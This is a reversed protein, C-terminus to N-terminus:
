ALEGEVAWRRFRYLEVEQQSREKGEIWWEQYGDADIVAPGDTRHLQGNQWWEQDGNPMIVAPGDTRHLVGNLRWEQRGDHWIRAPGDTRHLQGNQRWVLTGDELVHLVPESVDETEGLARHDM